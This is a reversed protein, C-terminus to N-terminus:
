QQNKNNNNIISYQDNGSEDIIYTPSNSILENSFYKEMTNIVCHIRNRFNVKIEMRFIIQIILYKNEFSLFNIYKKLLM